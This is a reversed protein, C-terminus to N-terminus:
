IVQCYVGLLIEVSGPTDWAPENATYKRISFNGYKVKDDITACALHIRTTATDYNIFDSYEIVSDSADMLIVKISTGRDIIKLHYETGITLTGTSIWRGTTWASSQRTGLYLKGTSDARNIWWYTVSFTSDSYYISLTQGGTGAGVPIVSLEIVTNDTDINSQSYIRSLGSSTLTRTYFWDDPCARQGVGAWKWRPQSIEKSPDYSAFYALPETAPATNRGGSAYMIGNVFSGANGDMAYPGPSKETWTNGSISYKLVTCFFQNQTSQGAFYYISGDLLVNERIGGYLTYPLATGSSWSNGSINYIRTYSTAAGSYYGGIVYLKGSDYVTVAWTPANPTTSSLQTYSGDSVTYKYVYAGYQLYIDTGDTCGSIGQAGIAAPCSNGTSWSDTSPNYIELKTSASGHSEGGFVYILSGVTVAIMGWRDTPMGTKQTWTSTSINYEWCDNMGGYGHTGSSAGPLYGGIVYLKSNVVAITQDATSWPMDSLTTWAPYRFDDSPSICTNYINSADSDDSKGYYMYITTSGSASISPIEILWTGSSSNYSKRWFDILTDGDSSTFRIDFPWNLAQSQLYINGASSSGTGSYIKLYVQFNTLAGDASHVVPIAIRHTYGALM